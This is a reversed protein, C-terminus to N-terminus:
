GSGSPSRSPTRTISASFACARSSGSSCSARWSRGCRRATRRRSTSPYIDEYSKAPERRLPHQRGPPPPVVAPTGEGLSPGALVAARLGSRSGHRTREGSRGAGPLRGADGPGPAGGHPRGEGRRHGLPQWCRRNHGRHRQQPGQPQGASPTSPPLYLVDFGMKAIYPLWALCTKFSGHKGAIPATSRPFLEYWASFRAREREAVIRQGADYLTLPSRPAYRRMLETVSRDLAADARAVPAWDTRLLVEARQMLRRSEAPPAAQAAQRILAAGVPLEPSVDQAADLRRQLDRTWTAYADVWAALAYVYSGVSAAVFEGTWHDNGQLTMPAECWEDGEGIRKYLLLCALEDHGEAFVDAEVRVADGVVRKAAFRGCDVEPKVNEIVVRRREPPDSAPLRM